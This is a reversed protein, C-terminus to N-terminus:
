FNKWLVEIGKNWTKVDLCIYKPYLEYMLKKKTNKDKALAMFFGGGGAGMIKGALVGKSRLYRYLEDIHPNASGANFKKKVVWGEHLIKGLTKFDVRSKELEKKFEYSLPILRKLTDNKERLRLRQQSQLQISSSGRTMNTFVLFLREELANLNDKKIKVKKVSTKQKSFSISNIGGFVTAYQDQKGGIMGSEKELNYLLEAFARKDSIKQGKLTACGLALGGMISSSAGMGSGTTMVDSTLVIEIGKLIGFHELATRTYRHLIRSVIPQTEITEHHVRVNSDFMDKISVYVFINVASSVVHGEGNEPYFEEFDTGGGIFSVRLPARVYVHRRGYLM